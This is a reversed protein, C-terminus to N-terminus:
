CMPLEILSAISHKSTQTECQVEMVKIKRTRNAKEERRAKKAASEGKLPVTQTPRSYPMIALPIQPPPMSSEAPLDLHCTVEHEMAIEKTEPPNSPQQVKSWKRDLWGRHRARLEEFSYEEGKGGAGRPYVAEMDSFVCEPKGTKPNITIPRQSARSLTSPSIDNDNLHLSQICAFCDIVL